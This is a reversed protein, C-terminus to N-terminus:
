SLLHYHFHKGTQETITEYENIFLTNPNNTLIKEVSDKVQPNYPYITFDIAKGTVHKSNPKKKAHYVDNGGTIQVTISLGKFEEAMANFIQTSEDVLEPTIDGNSSLQPFNDAIATAAQKETIKFTNTSLSAIVERLKDANPSPPPLDDLKNKNKETKSNLFEEQNTSNNENTNLLTLHGELKTTWDQGSTITQTEKKTVFVINPNQYGLPLKRPNIKFIQLPHIGSIGDITMSVTIPIIASRNYTTNERFTGVWPATPDPNDMTSNNSRVGNEIEGYRSDISNKMEELRSAMDKAVSPSMPKRYRGEEEDLLETEYNSFNMKEIYYNLSLLANNYLKVDNKYRREMDTHFDDIEKQENEITTFRNKINKHFAKFSMAELTDIESPSQAAISIINAFDNDLKSQYSSERSISGLGQPDFQFIQRELDNKNGSFTFDIVRAIHPRSHETHLGFNYYGGCAENVGDWITTIFDHFSFKNKLKRQIQSVGDVDTKFTELALKEYNQILYDLNFYVMGISSDSSTTSDFSTFPNLALFNKDAGGETKLMKQIQHPMLCVNTDFSQGLTRINIRNLDNENWDIRRIERMTLDEKDGYKSYVKDNTMIGRRSYKSKSQSYDLYYNNNELGWKANNKNSPNPNDGAKFTPQNPNLYTLEVLAHDKKYQPTVLHNLIQCILDWRVFIKKRIGSDNLSEDQVSVEKIITGELIPDLGATSLWRVDGRAWEVHEELSVDM